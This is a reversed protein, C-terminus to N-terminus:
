MKQLAEQLRKVAKKRQDFVLKGLAGKDGAKSILRLNTEMSDVLTLAETLLEKVPGATGQVLAQLQAKMALLNAQSGAGIGGLENIMGIILDKEGSKRLGMRELLGM